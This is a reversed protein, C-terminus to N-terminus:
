TKQADLGEGVPAKLCAAIGAVRLAAMTGRVAQSPAMGATLTRM